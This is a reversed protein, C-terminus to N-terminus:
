ARQLHRVQRAARERVRGIWGRVVDDGILGILLRLNAACIVVAIPPLLTDLDVGEDFPHAPNVASIVGDGMWFHFNVCVFACLAAAAAAAGIELCALRYHREGRAPLRGCLLAAGALLAVGTGLECVEILYGFTVSHSLVVARLLGVYWGNRNGNLGDSLAGALGQPFRGSLLKNAGSILWEYGVIAQIAALLYRTGKSM